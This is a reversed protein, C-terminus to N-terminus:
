GRERALVAAEVQRGQALQDVHQGRAAQRTGLDHQDFSPYLPKTLSSQLDCCPQM